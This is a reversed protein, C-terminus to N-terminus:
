CWRVYLDLLEIDTLAELMPPMGECENYMNEYWKTNRLTTIVLERM